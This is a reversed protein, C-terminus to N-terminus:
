QFNEKEFTRVIKKTPSIDTIHAFLTPSSDTSSNDKPSNNQLGSILCRQGFFVRPFAQCRLEKRAEMEKIERREEGQVGYISQDSKKVGGRGTNSNEIAM